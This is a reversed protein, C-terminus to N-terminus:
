AAEKGCERLSLLAVTIDEDGSVTMTIGRFFTLRWAGRNKRWLVAWPKGCADREAQTCADTLLKTGIDMGEVRKVELHVGLEDCVVDPSEGGGRFQQGRRAAFGLISELYKAALREGVVGKRRQNITM